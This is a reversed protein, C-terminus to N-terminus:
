NFTKKTPINFHAHGGQTIFELIPHIVPILQYILNIKRM